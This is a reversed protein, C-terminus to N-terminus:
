ASNSPCLSLRTMTFTMPSHSFRDDTTPRQDGALGRIEGIQQQFFSSDTDDLM